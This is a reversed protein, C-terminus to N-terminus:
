FATKAEIRILVSATHDGVTVQPIDGCIFDVSGLSRLFDQARQPATTMEYVVVSDRRCNVQEIGANSALKQLVFGFREIQDPALTIAVTVVAPKAVPNTRAMPVSPTRLVARQEASLGSSGEAAEPLASPTQDAPEQVIPRQALDVREGPAGHRLMAVVVFAAVLAVTPYAVVRWHKVLRTPLAGQNQSRARAAAPTPLANIKDMVRATFSEGLTQSEMAQRSYARIAGRITLLDNYYQSAEPLERILARARRSEEDSVEGDIYSSLLAEIDRTIM